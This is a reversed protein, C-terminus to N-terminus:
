PAIYCIVKNLKRKQNHKCVKKKYTDFSNKPDRYIFYKSSGSHFEVLNYVKNYKYSGITPSEITENNNNNNIYDMNQREKRDMEVCTLPLKKLM